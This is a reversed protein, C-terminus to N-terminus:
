RDKNRSAFASGSESRVVAKIYAVDKRNFQKLLAKNQYIDHASRIFFCTCGIEQIYLLGKRRIDKIYYRVPRLFPTRSLISKIKM